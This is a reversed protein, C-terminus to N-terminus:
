QVRVPLSCASYYVHCNTNKADTCIKMGFQVAKDLTVDASVNYGNDGVVLVACENDYAIEFKCPSGGKAQCNAMAAQQAESKSSLGTVAGLIGKVKDTAIAGWQSAWQPPPPQPPQPQAQQQNNNDGPIPACGQPGGQGPPAGIPYYGPPCNGEAHVVGGLLMLLGFLLWRYTRM